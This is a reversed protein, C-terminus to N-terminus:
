KKADIFGRTVSINVTPRVCVQAIKPGVCAREKGKTHQTYDFDFSASLIKFKGGEEKVKYSITVNQTKGMMTLKAPAKGSAEKSAEPFTLSSKEVELTIKQNWGLGIKSDEGVTHKQRGDKMRIPLDDDKDPKIVHVTFVLKSGEEKVSFKGDGKVDLKGTYSDGIGAITTIEFAGRGVRDGGRDGHGGHDGHNGDANASGVGLLLVSTAAAAVLRRLMSRKRSPALTLEPHTTNM